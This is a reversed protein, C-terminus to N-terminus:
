YPHRGFLYRDVKAIQPAFASLRLKTNSLPLGMYTQPFTDRKCELIDVLRGVVGESVHMPVMTSKHFNIKPEDGRCVLGLM